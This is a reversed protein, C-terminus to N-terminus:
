AVAEAGVAKAYAVPNGYADIRGIKGDVIVFKFVYINRYPEGTQANVLEGRGEAFVVGAREDAYFTMGTMRVTSFTTIISTMYGLVAQKGDFVDWPELSGDLSMRVAEVVDDALLPEVLELSKTQLAEFYTEAISRMDIGKARSLSSKSDTM